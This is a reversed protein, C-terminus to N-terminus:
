SINHIRIKRRGKSSRLLEIIELIIRKDEGWISVDYIGSDNMDVRWFVETNLDPFDKGIFAPVLAKRHIKLDAWELGAEYVCTLINTTILRSIWSIRRDFWIYNIARDILIRM